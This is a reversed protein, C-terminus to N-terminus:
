KMEYFEVCEAKKSGNSLEIIKEKYVYLKENYKVIKLRTYEGGPCDSYYQEYEGSDEIIKGNTLAEELLEKEM